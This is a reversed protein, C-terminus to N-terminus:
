SVISKWEAPSLVVWANVCESQKICHHLSHRFRLRFQIQRRLFVQILLNMLKMRRRSKLRISPRDLPRVSIATPRQTVPITPPLTSISSLTSWHPTNLLITYRRNEELLPPDQRMRHSKVDRLLLIIRLFQFLLYAQIKTQQHRFISYIRLLQKTRNWAYNIKLRVIILSKAEIIKTEINHSKITKPKSPIHAQTSILGNQQTNLTQM